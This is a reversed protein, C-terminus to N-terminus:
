NGQWNVGMYSMVHNGATATLAVNSSNLIIIGWKGPLFLLGAAQCFSVGKFYSVLSATATTVSTALVILNAQSDPTFAADSGSANNCYTTGADNSWYGFMTYSGTVLPTGNSQVHGYILADAFKNTTNDVAASQRLAATALSALTITIATNSGYLPQLTFAM